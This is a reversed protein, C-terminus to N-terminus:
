EDIKSLFMELKQEKSLDMRKSIELSEKLCTYKNAVGESMTHLERLQFHSEVKERIYGEVIQFLHRDEHMHAAVFLRTITDLTKSDGEGLRVARWLMVTIFQKIAFSYFGMHLYYDGMYQTQEMIASPQKFFEECIEQTLEQEKWLYMLLTDPIEKKECLEKISALRNKVPLDLEKAPALLTRSLELVERELICAREVDGRKFLYVCVNHYSDVMKNRYDAIVKGAKQEEAAQLRAKRMWYTRAGFKWIDDDQLTGEGSKLCYWPYNGRLNQQEVLILESLIKGFSEEGQEWDRLKKYASVMKEYLEVSIETCSNVVFDQSQEPNIILQLGNNEENNFVQGEMLRDILEGALTEFEEIGMTGYRFAIDYQHEASSDYAIANLAKIKQQKCRFVKIDEQQNSNLKEIMNEWFELCLMELRVAEGTQSNNTYLDGLNFCCQMYYCVDKMEINTVDFENFDNSIKQQLEEINSLDINSVNVFPIGYIEKLKDIYRSYFRIFGDDVSGREKNANYINSIANKIENISKKKDANEENIYAYVIEAFSHLRDPQYWIEKHEDAKKEGYLQIFKEFLYKLVDQKIYNRENRYLGDKIAEHLKFKDDGLEEMPANNFLVNKANLLHNDFKERVVDIWLSDWTSLCSLIQFANIMLDSLDKYFYYGFFEDQNKLKVFSDTKIECAPDQALKRYHLAVLRLLYPLYTSRRENQANFRHYEEVHCVELMRETVEDNENLNLCNFQLYKKATAEDFGPLEIEDFRKDTEGQFINQFLGFTSIRSVIIWMAKLSDMLSGPKSLWTQDRGLENTAILQFNDLIIVPKKCEIDFQEMEQANKGTIALVLLGRLIEERASKSAFAEVVDQMLQKIRKEKVGSVVAGGIVRAANVLPIIEAMTGLIDYVIEFDNSDIVSIGKQIQQAIVDGEEILNEVTGTNKSPYQGGKGYIWEYIQLFQTIAKEAKKDGSGSKYYTQLERALKYYVEMEDACDSVDVYAAFATNHNYKGQLKNCVERVVFSKGAGPLGSITLLARTCENDERYEEIKDLIDGIEDRNVPQFGDQLVLERKASM